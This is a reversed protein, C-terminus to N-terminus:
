SSAGEIFAKVTHIAQESLAKANQRAQYSQAVLSAIEAQFDASPLYILFRAIEHPYIEVQGSSGSLWKETQIQGIESNLYVALYIPDCEDSPRIVTVHNDVVTKTKHLVCNARGITGRGTSNMLVDYQNARAKPARRWFDLSTRRTQEVHVFQRGVYRSNVVVIHGDEIYSPQTGRTIYPAIDGLSKTRGTKHLHKELRDYKPQFHEADLRSTERARSLPVTYHKSQLLSAQDLHLQELLLGEAELYLQKSRAQTEQSTNILEELDRQVGEDFIPVLVTAIDKPYLHLQGTSGTVRRELQLYGYKTMLFAALAAPNYERSRIVSVESVTAAKREELYLQVKGISGAGICSILVDGRRLYFLREEPSAYLVDEWDTIDRLDIARIVPIGFDSYKSPNRGRLVRAVQGIETCAKFSRVTEVARTYTPQYYEPDLRTNGELTAKNVVSWVAM